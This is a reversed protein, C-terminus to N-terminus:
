YGMGMSGIKIFSGLLSLGAKGHSSGMERGRIKFLTVRIATVMKTLSNVSDGRRARTCQVKTLPLRQRFYEEEKSNTIRSAGSM